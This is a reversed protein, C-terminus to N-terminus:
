SLLEDFCALNAEWTLEMQTYLRADAELQTNPKKLLDSIEFYFQEEEKAILVQERHQVDLGEMALPTGIVSKGMAMAELVKNQIGRGMRMPAVVVKAHALYPRVDAVEGTVFVNSLRSLAKVLSNPRMGVIYFCANPNREHIMYFVNKAFWDVADVNPMYDMVGTFVMVEQGQSYPNPYEREPSFYDADVGNLYYGVKDASEPALQQFATAETESVFLSVDFTSAVQREYELLKRAEYSYVMNVPPASNKAYQKWKQSDIDVFDIIRMASEYQTVFQTMAGSFVIIRRIDHGAITQDVWQQMREDQYYDLSLPRQSFFASLSKIRATTPNLESFHTDGCVAKVQEVHAKDEPDDIFCGLHVRFKQALFKILNWSRIKDGKNPPYPIRHTLILVDHM